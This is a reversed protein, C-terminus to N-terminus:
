AASITSVQAILVRDRGEAKARLLAADSATLLDQPTTGHEPFAAVGLSLSVKGLVIDRHKILLQQFTIRLEEARRFTDKLSSEPLVLTFEEGGYRCALDGKRTFQAMYDGLEKLVTDGADHGFMDNFQKFRDVDVMIVGLPRNKRIASSLERELSEDLYRRNFLGTLPDRISQFRLKERLKLNAFSLAAREAVSVALQVNCESISASPELAGNPQTVLCLIGLTEGHAMLPICLSPLRSAAGFHLCRVAGEERGSQHLHGRRLAWCDNPSFTREMSSSQGWTTNAELINRSASFVLVVGSLGPFMRQASSAIVGSAEEITLCSQLLDTMESLSSAELNRSELEGMSKKLKENTKSLEKQAQSREGMLKTLSDAMVNFSGALEGLEDNSNVPIRTEMKGQGLELAADRLVQIPGIVSRSVVGAFVVGVVVGLLIILITQKYSNNLAVEINRRYEAAVRDTEDALEQVTKPLADRVWPEMTKQVFEDEQPSSSDSMQIFKDARSKLEPLSDSLETVFQIEHPDVNDSAKASGAVMTEQGQQTESRNITGLSTEYAAIGSRFAGNALKRQREADEHERPELKRYSESLSEEMASGIEHLNSQLTQAMVEQKAQYGSMRLAFSIAPNRILAVYAAIPPLLSITVLAVLLKTKIKM